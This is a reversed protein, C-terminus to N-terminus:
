AAGGVADPPQVPTGAPGRTALVVGPLWGSPLASAPRAAAIRAFDRSRWADGRAAGPRGGGRAARGGGRGAVGGLGGAGVAADQAAARVGRRGRRLGGGRDGPPPEHRDFALLGSDVDPVPWFVARPVPGARRAAAYWALKASPVGYTRKGPGAALRDAVEAQVMVLGAGSRRAARGAPAAAGARRRQLAPERGARDAASRCRGLDRAPVRLADAAHVVDAPRGARTRPRGRHRAAARGAGPRDRRRARAPWRPCCRRPDALRSRARGRAGRRRADARRGARDAARHQRRARLEARAAQDAAPGAGRRAGAGRGPRAAAGRGGDRDSPRAGWGVPRARRWTGDGRGDVRPLGLKRACAPWVGYGGGRADRVKAAVAIQEERSAQHPLAAYTSGGYARWTGADFQLGGYYGNGTSIGLQRHGRVQRARDWVGGDDVAPASPVDDNTGVRVVRPVAATMAGAGIQERRVEEGNQVYVKM